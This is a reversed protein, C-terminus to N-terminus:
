AGRELKEKLEQLMAMFVVVNQIKVKLLLGDFYLALTCLSGACSVFNLGGDLWFFITFLFFLHFLLSSVTLKLATSELQLTLHEIQAKLFEPSSSDPLTM